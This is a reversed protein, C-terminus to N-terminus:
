GAASGSDAQSINPRKPREKLPQVVGISMIMKFADEIGIDVNVVKDEPMLMLFGTTPNPTTPVFVNTMKQGLASDFVASSKNSVFGISWLGERPFEVMVVRQFTTNGDRLVTEMLQKSARYVMGVLPLSNLITESIKILRRMIWAQGIMGTFLLVVIVTLLALGFDAASLLFNLLSIAIDPLFDLKQASVSQPLINFDLVGYLWQVLRLLVIWSVLIPVLILLGTILYKRLISKMNKM